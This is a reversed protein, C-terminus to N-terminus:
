EGHKFRKEEYLQQDAKVFASKVSDEESCRVYGISVSYDVVSKSGEAVRRRLKSIAAEVDEEFMAEMYFAFEDGGVRAAVADYKASIYQLASALHAIVQDGVGHGYTDNIEKFFDIDCMVLYLHPARGPTGLAVNLSDDFSQKNLLRTMSDRRIKNNQSFIFNLLLSIVLSYETMGPLKTPILIDKACFIVPVVTLTLVALPEQRKNANEARFFYYLTLMVTAVLYAYPIMQFYYTDTRYFYGDGDIAFVLHFLPAFVLALMEVMCPIPLLYRIIGTKSLHGLRNLCYYFASIGIVGLAAYYVTCASYNLKIFEPKGNIYISVADSICVLFSAIYIYLKANTSRVKWNKYNFIFLIAILTACFGLAQIKLIAADM